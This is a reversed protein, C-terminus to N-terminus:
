SRMLIHAYVYKFLLFLVLYFMPNDLFGYDKPYASANYYSINYVFICTHTPFECYVYLILDSTMFNMSSDPKGM